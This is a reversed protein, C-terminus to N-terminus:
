KRSREKRGPRNRCGKRDCLENCRKCFEKVIEQSGNWERTDGKEKTGLVGGERRNVYNCKEGDRGKEERAGLVNPNKERGQKGTKHVKVRKKTNGLTRGVDIRSKQCHGRKKKRNEGGPFKGITAHKQGKVIEPNTGRKGNTERKPDVSRRASTESAGTAALNTKGERGKALTGSRKMIQASMNMPIQRKARKEELLEGEGISIKGAPALKTLRGHQNNREARKQGTRSPLRKEGNKEWIM